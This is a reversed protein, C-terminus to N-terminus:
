RIYQLYGCEAYLLPHIIILYHQCPFLIVPIFYGRNCLSNKNLFPRRPNCASGGKLIPVGFPNELLPAITIKKGTM